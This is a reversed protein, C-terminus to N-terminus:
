DTNVGPSLPEDPQALTGRFITEETITTDNMVAAVSQSGYNPKGIIDDALNIQTYSHNESNDYRKSQM